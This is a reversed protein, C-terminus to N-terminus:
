SAIRSVADQVFSSYGRRQAVRLVSSNFRGRTADGVPRRSCSRALRARAARARFHTRWSVAIRGV